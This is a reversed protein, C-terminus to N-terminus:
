NVKMGSAAIVPAWRKYETEIYRTYGAADLDNLEIGEPKIKEQVDPARLAKRVELNLRAVMDAPLGAPGSLGFWTAAVMETQGLEKFTPLDPYEPLRNNASIALGRLKGARVLGGATSITIAGLPVQGGLLDAVAPAGGKYPVHQMDTQTLYKFLEAVLHGGSGNGPSAYSLSGPKSKALAILERVDKVPVSPHVAFVTPPGGFLAIHSFSKIPDYGVKNASPAIAHAAVSSILLTYGDPAAKAVFETGIVGGAGVRNEVVFQQKFVESLKQSVLRGLTDAAGGAGFIAVVRVPKQSPWAQAQASGSVPLLAALGLLATARMANRARRTLDCFAFSTMPVATTLGKFRSM